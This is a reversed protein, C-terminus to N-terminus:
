QICAFGWDTLRFRWFFFNRTDMVVIEATPCAEAGVLSSTIIWLSATSIPQQYACAEEAGYACVESPM